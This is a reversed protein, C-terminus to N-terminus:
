LAALRTEVRREEDGPWGPAADREDASEPVAGGPQLLGAEELAESDPSEGPSGLGFRALFAPKAVGTLRAGPAPSRPGAGGSGAAKSLQM